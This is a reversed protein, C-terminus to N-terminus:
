HMERSAILSLLMSHDCSTAFAISFGCFSLSRLSIGSRAGDCFWRSFWVLKLCRLMTVSTAFLMAFCFCGVCVFVCIHSIHAGPWAMGSLDMERLDENKTKTKKKAINKM